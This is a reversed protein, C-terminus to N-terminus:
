TLIKEAFILGAKIYGHGKVKCNQMRKQLKFHIEQLTSNIKNKSKRNGIACIFNHLYFVIKRFYIIKNIFVIFKYYM